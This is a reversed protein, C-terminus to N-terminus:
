PDDDNSRCWLQGNIRRAGGVRRCCSLACSPYSRDVSRAGNREVEFVKSVCRVRSFVQMSFSSIVQMVRSEREENMRKAAQADSEETGDADGTGRPGGGPGSM